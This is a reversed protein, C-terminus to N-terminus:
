RPTLYSFGAFIDWKSAANDSATRSAYTKVDPKTADQATLAIPAMGIFALALIHKVSKLYSSKM